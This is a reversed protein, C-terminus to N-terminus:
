SVGKKKKRLGPFFAGWFGYAAKIRDEKSKPAHLEVPEQLVSKFKILFNDMTVRGPEKVWSRRVEAALQALYWEVKETRELGDQREEEWYEQWDDFESVPMLQQTMWVPMHILSSLKFWARKRPSM